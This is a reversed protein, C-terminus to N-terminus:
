KKGNGHGKGHSHEHDGKGKKIKNGKSEKYKYSKHSVNNKLAHFEASGPKIGMERAIEGWGKARKVQYIRIVEDVPRRSVRSLELSFYIDAPEISLESHYYNIRDESINYGLSLDARFREFNANASVNIQNVDGDILFNGSKIQAQSSIAM